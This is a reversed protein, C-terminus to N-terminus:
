LKKYRNYICRNMRSRYVLLIYSECLTRINTYCLISFVLVYTLTWVYYSTMIFTGEFKRLFGRPYLLLCNRGSRSCDSFLYRGLLLILFTSICYLACSTNSSYSEDYGIHKKM